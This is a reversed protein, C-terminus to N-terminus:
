IDVKALEDKDFLPLGYLQVTFWLIFCTVWTEMEDANCKNYMEIQWM